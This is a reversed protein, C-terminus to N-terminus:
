QDQEATSRLPAFCALSLIILIAGAAFLYKRRRPESSRALWTPMVPSNPEQEAIETLFQKATALELATARPYVTNPEERDAGLAAPALREIINPDDELQTLLADYDDDLAMLQAALREARRLYHKNRYHKVLDDCLVSGGVAAAGASFFVM